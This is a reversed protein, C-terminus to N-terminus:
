DVTVEVYRLKSEREVQLVVVDGPGFAALAKKIEDLTGVAKRNVLYIIDGTDLVGASRGASALVNAVLIGRPMRTDPLLDKVKTDIELGMIGLQPITAVAHNVLAAFRDPDNAQESVKVRFSRNRGGRLVEVEVESDVQKSYLNVQLQRANEMPKGNLALVIDGVRLGARHAPGDPTVDGLIVGTQQPLGLSEAMTDTITQPEIGIEGRRVVGNQIIQETVSKAINSPIALGVGESGGSESIIMTNVGIVGGEVDVMPGGSNGPNISVDSQIYIMPEDAELQRATASVIGMAMSNQLGFPSGFALVMQGQRIGDSDAFTLHPLNKGDVKLVALDSERDIGILKATLRRGRPRLISDNANSPGLNPLIVQIRTSGKVVHSNTVVFGDATILFGSGTAQEYATPSGPTESIPSYADSLVQVVAPSVRESLQTLAQDFKRLDLQAFLASWGILSICLKWGLRLGRKEIRVQIIHHEVRNQFKSIKIGPSRVDV